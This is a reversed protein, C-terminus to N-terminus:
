KGVWGTFLSYTFFAYYDPDDVIFDPSDPRCLRRYDARDQPTLEAEAGAWRMQMLAVLADRIYRGLPSCVDGAFTRAGVDRFGARRLWGPARLWHLEPAAGVIFPAIGPATANLRAELRPYGPLLKESSWILMMVRGGARVVRRLERLTEVPQRGPYGVCDVSWVWDFADDEFPLAAINGERFSVRDALGAIDM